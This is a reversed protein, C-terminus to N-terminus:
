HSLYATISLHLNTSHPSGSHFLRMLWLRKSRLVLQMSYKEFNTCQFCLFIYRDDFRSDISYLNLNFTHKFIENRATTCHLFFKNKQWAALKKAKNDTQEYDPTESERFSVTIVYKQRMYISFFIESLFSINIPRIIPNWYNWLLNRRQLFYNIIFFHKEPKAQLNHAPPHLRFILM